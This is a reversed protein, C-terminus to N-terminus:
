RPSENVPYSAGQLGQGAEYKSTCRAQIKEARFVGDNAYRGEVIGEAGGVFTDPPTEVGVYLVPISEGEQALRFKLSGDERLISGPMVIGGVRLRKEYDPGNVLEEVTIYYTQNEQFGVIVQWAVVTIIIGVGIFFKLQKKPM